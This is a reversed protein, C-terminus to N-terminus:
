PAQKVYLVPITMLLMYVFIETNASTMQCMLFVGLAASLCLNGVPARKIQQFGMVILPLAFWGLFLALGVLGYMVALGTFWNLWPLAGERQLWVSLEVTKYHERALVERMVRDYEGMGYGYVPSAAICQLEASLHISRTTKPSAADTQIVAQVLSSINTSSHRQMMLACCSGVVFVIAFFALKLRLLREMRGILCLALLVWVVCAMTLSIAGAASKTKCLLLGALGALFLNGITGRLHKSVWAHWAFFLTTFGLLVSYYAPEEFIGRYRESEWLVPPWVNEGTWETIGTRLFYHIANKLVDTAWEVGAFHLCELISYCACVGLLAVFTWYFLRKIEDWPFFLCCAAFTYWLLFFRIAGSIAKVHSFTIADFGISVILAVVMWIAWLGGTIAAMRLYRDERGWKLIRDFNLVLLVLLPYFTLKAFPGFPFNNFPYLLLTLSLLIKTVCDRWTWANYLQTLKQIM